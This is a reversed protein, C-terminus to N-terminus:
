KWGRAKEGYEWNISDANVSKMEKLKRQKKPPKKRM